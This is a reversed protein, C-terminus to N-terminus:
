RSGESVFEPEIGTLYSWITGAPIRLRGRAFRTSARQPVFGQGDMLAEATQAQTNPWREITMTSGYVTASDSIVSFGRVFVRKGADLESAGTELTAELNSGRFFGLVNSSNFAAIEPTSATAINDLSGALLDISASPAIADLGELTLGPQALTGIYEGTITLPTFRDLVYDYCLGKDFLGAVGSISKYFLFVRSNRPDPAAICLQLSSQELDALLTRDIKEKGLHIPYGSPSMGMFGATSLFFIRDGSRVLSYPAFLGLDETVREIQFIVPSGPAYTMRRITTDQFINGYEGGAVGRVIGGDPLDQFDSSNVGSTWTTTANLGSWQVRYPNSLLGSLVVFRGVVSVYRAQPPSGGLAAFASSSTLDFVQPVVNAQVAIIFNGFQVFQWNDSATLASYSGAGLSVDAWTFDTNNLKYLKTSTAAFIAVSGDTKIAKFFGRCAGSLAASLGSFDQIPGYGDGRPLVNKLFATFQASYDSIDPRYEGVPMLSM